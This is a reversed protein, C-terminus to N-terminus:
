DPLDNIRPQNVGCHRAVETQTWGNGKKDV